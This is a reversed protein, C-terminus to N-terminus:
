DAIPYLLKDADLLVCTAGPPIPLPGQNLARFAIVVEDDEAGGDPRVARRATREPPADLFGEVGGRPSPRDPEEHGAPETPMRGGFRLDHTPKQEIEARGVILDNHFVGGAIRTLGGDTTRGHQTPAAIDARHHHAAAAVM